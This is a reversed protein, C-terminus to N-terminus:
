RFSIRLSFIYMNCQIALSVEGINYQQHRRRILLLVVLIVVVVLVPIWIGLIIFTINNTDAGGVYIFYVHIFCVTFM